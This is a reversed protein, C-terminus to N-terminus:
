ICRKLKLLERDQAYNQERIFEQSPNYQSIVEDWFPTKSALKDYKEM